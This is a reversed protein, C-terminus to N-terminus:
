DPVVGMPLQMTACHLSGFQEVLARCDVPIIERNKFYSSMIEAAVADASDDYCPMLVADNIILFNTYGAPLRQGQTNYLPAPLPLAVLEYASGDAQRLNALEGRMALLSQYHEDAPDDCGQYLITQPAAFRALTDIHGDTDDGALYGHGLWHVTHCDFWDRFLGELSTEDLGPNRSALTLCNRTTLLYGLGNVEIAGGEIVRDISRLPTAGFASQQHLRRTVLNDQDAAYKGGWGNFSFDLLITQDDQMVVVPGHDRVWIDNSPVIYVAVNSIDADASKLLVHVHERSISDQVSVILRQRRSIHTALEIFVSEVQPLATGWDGLAHPWTLMVASQPGWEPPLM